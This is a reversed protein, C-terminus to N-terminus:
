GALELVEYVRKIVDAVDFPKTIVAQYTGPHPYDEERQVAGTVLIIPVHNFRENTRMSEVVARGSIGPMFLDILLVDPQPTQGLRQLASLGDPATDVDHGEDILVEQLVMAITPEDDVVLVRALFM